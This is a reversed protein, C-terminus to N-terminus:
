RRIARTVRTTQRYSWDTERGEADFEIAGTQPNMTTVLTHGNPLRTAAVPQRVSVDWLPRGAADYEVVRNESHHPVLVHGKPSVDLRGGFLRMGLDLPFSSIEKGKDNMRVIRGDSLLAVIDGGPLKTVKMFREGPPGPLAAVEEGAEDFEYLMTDTAVFTNRNPLRQATLPGTVTKQWRIEGKTRDREAVRNAQYEAILVNGNPLMQVDLPLAINEIKWLVQNKADLELVEGLDLLVILTNGLLPPSEHLKALDIDREHAAWWASWADVYKKRAAADGVRPLNPGKRSEGLRVLIEEGAWAHVQPVSPLGEILTPMAYKEGAAVLAAAVRVRVIPDSDKLLRKVSDAADAIGVLAEGAAARRLPHGDKLAAVLKPQFRADERALKKLSARLADAVDEGDAHPLFGLFAEVLGEPAQRSATRIAALIATRPPAEMRIKAACTEARRRLELDDSTQAKALLELAPPGYALIATTAAERKRFEPVGLQEILEEIKRREVDPLSRKRFYALLDDGSTGIAYRKLLDADTQTEPRQRRNSADFPDATSSKTEIKPPEDQARPSQLAFQGAIMLAILLISTRRM